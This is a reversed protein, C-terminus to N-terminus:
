QITAYNTNFKLFFVYYIKIKLLPKKFQKCSAIYENVAEKFMEKIENVSTGEYMITDYIGEIKGFLVQDEDSYSVSGLFGKYSLTNKM